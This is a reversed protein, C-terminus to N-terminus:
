MSNNMRKTIVGKSLSLGQKPSYIMLYYPIQFGDERTYTEFDIVGFPAIEIKREENFTNWIYSLM